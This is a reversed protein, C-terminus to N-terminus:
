LYLNADVFASIRVLKGLPVPMNDPFEEHDGGYVSNEWDQPEDQEDLHSYNPVQIRTTIAADKFKWVYGYLNKLRELHGKRPNCRFSSMSNVATM